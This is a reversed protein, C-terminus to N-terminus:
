RTYTGYGPHNFSQRQQQPQPAAPRAPQSYSRYPQGLQRPAPQMTPKLPLAAVPEPVPSTCTIGRREDVPAVEIPAADVVPAPEQMATAAPVPMPMADIDVAPMPAPAADSPSETPQVAVAPLPAAPPPPVEDGAEMDPAAPHQYVYTEDATPEQEIPTPAAQIVPPQELYWPTEEVSVLAQSSTPGPISAFPMPELPMPELPMPETPLPGLIPMPEISQAASALQISPVSRNSKVPVFHVVDSLDEKKETGAVKRPTLYHIPVILAGGAALALVLCVKFAPGPPVYPESLAPDAHM